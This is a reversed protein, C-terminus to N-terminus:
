GHSCGEDGKRYGPGCQPCRSRSLRCAEALYAPENILLWEVVEAKRAEHVGPMDAALKKLALSPANMAWERLGTM